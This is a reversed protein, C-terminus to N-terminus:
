KSLQKSLQKDLQKQREKQSLCEQCKVNFQQSENKLQHYMQQFIQKLQEFQQSNFLLKYHNLLDIFLILQKQRCCWVNVLDNELIFQQNVDNKDYMWVEKKISHLNKSLLMSYEVIKPHWKEFYYNLIKEFTDVIICQIQYQQSNKGYHRLIKLNKDNCASLSLRNYKKKTWSIIGISSDISSNTYTGTNAIKCYQMRKKYNYLFNWAVPNMNFTMTRFHDKKENLKYENEFGKYLMGFDILYCEHQKSYIDIMINNMHLDNHMTYSADNYLIM